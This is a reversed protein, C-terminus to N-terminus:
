YLRADGGRQEAAVLMQEAMKQTDADVKAGKRLALALARGAVARDNGKDLVLAKQFETEADLYAASTDLALKEEGAALHEAASGTLESYQARWRDVMADIPRASSIPLKQALP